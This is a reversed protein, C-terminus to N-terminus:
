VALEEAQRTTQSESLAGRAQVPEAAVVHEPGLSLGCQTCSPTTESFLPDLGDYTGNHALYRLTALYWHGHPDDHRSEVILGRHGCPCIVQTITRSTM